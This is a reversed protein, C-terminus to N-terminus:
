NQSDTNHQVYTVTEGYITNWDDRMSVPIWGYTECLGYMKDAKDLNGNERELDDCCLMFAMSRYPNNTITYEAMSNDSSSNGFSLVPQVGIERVILNVKNMNLDKLLFEGEFILEDESTFQYDLGATDGQNSALVLQDSGIIRSNPINLPSNEFIGRVIFRDTGSVVYVTFDNAELYDIVQIMPLYWGNGRTLGEYSPMDQEKFAQVYADFEDLTMGSFASALAQGHNVMMNEPAVGTENMTIIDQAVQREFDSAIDRYDPDETIRYLLLMHDFYNPDTECFLTGDFDFVAIRNEVPIYDPGNVDTVAEVYDILANRSECDNWMSLAEEGTVVTVDANEESKQSCGSIGIIMAISLILCLCRKM